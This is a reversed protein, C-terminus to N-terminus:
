VRFGVGWVAKSQFPNVFTSVPKVHKLSYSVAGYGVGELSDKLFFM